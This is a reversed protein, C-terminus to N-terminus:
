AVIEVPFSRMIKRAHTLITYIDQSEAYVKNAETRAELYDETCPFGHVGSNLEGFAEMADENVCAFLDDIQAWLGYATGLDGAEKMDQLLLIAHQLHTLSPAPDSVVKTMRYASVIQYAATASLLAAVLLLALTNVITREPCTGTRIPM